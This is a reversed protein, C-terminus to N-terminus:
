TRRSSSAKPRTRYRRRPRYSRREEKRLIYRYYDADYDDHRFRDLKYVVAYDIRRGKAHEVPHKLKILSVM